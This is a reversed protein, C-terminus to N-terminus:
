SVGAVMLNTKGGSTNRLIELLIVFSTAPTFRTVYSIEEFGGATLVSKKTVRAYSVTQSSQPIAIFRDFRYCTFYIM